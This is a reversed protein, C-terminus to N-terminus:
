SARGLTVMSAAARARFAPLATIRRPPLAACADFRTRMSTHRSARDETPKGGSAIEVTSGHPRPPARAMIRARPAISARMGRPPAPRMLATTSSDRTGTMSVPVPLQWTYTSADASKSAASAIMMFAFVCRTPTHLAASVSSTWASTAGRNRTAATVLSVVAPTVIWASSAVRAMM